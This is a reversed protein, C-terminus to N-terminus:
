RMVGETIYIALIQSYGTFGLLCRVKTYDRIADFGVRACFDGFPEGAARRQKYFFFLPELVKEIDQVCM